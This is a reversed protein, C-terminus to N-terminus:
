LRRPIKDYIQLLKRSEVDWNLEEAAMMCNSKLLDLKENDQLLDSVKSGFEEPSEMSVTDICDYKEKIMRFFPLDNSLVPVGALIYEFLKNPSCYLHNDDVPRYPIVGIDAGASYNLMEDSPVPGLFFVKEELGEKTVLERLVKEFDGYGIIALCVKEPFYHVGRIMTQINRESSIWGQYLVVRYDDPINGKKRLLGKGADRDFDKPMETCNMIVNPEPVNYERSMIKAIFPNVTIVAKPVRIYKKETKYFLKTLIYSLSEQAYYLEHADYVLPVNIERSAFVGAKLCPLDHVHIIDPNFSLLRTIMFQDFPSKEFYRRAIAMYLRNVFAIIRDNSPLYGRLKRLRDDDWDYQYRHIEIGDLVYHEEEKCEFGALLIVQHGHQVLTKAELIIRRDIMYADPTIMVIKM